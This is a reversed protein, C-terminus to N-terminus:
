ILEIKWFFAKTENQITAEVLALQVTAAESDGVSINLNFVADRIDTLCATQEHTVQGKRYILLTPFINLQIPSRASTWITQSQFHNLVNRPAKNFVTNLFINRFDQHWKVSRVATTAINM